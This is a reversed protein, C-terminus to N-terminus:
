EVDAERSTSISGEVESLIVTKVSQSFHAQWKRKSCRFDMHISEAQCILVALNLAHWKRKSRWFDTCISELLCFFPIQTNDDISFGCRILIIDNVEKHLSIRLLSYSKSTQFSGDATSLRGQRVDPHTSRTDKAIHGWYWTFELSVM